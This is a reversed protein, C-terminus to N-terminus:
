TMEGIISLWKFDSRGCKDFTHETRIILVGSEALMNHLEDESYNKMYRNREDYGTKIGEKISIFITGGKKLNYKLNNFFIYAEGRHLHLLSACCWIGDYPEESIWNVMDDVIVHIGLHKEAERAMALSADLGVARYGMDCFAKVDRGSGCGIDIIRAQKPLHSIFLQRFHDFDADVTQNYYEEAHLNYYDITSNMRISGSKSDWIRRLSM